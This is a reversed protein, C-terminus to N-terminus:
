QPLKTKDRIDLAVGSVARVVDYKDCAYLNSFSFGGIELLHFEHNATECIDMVWVPDPAFGSKAIKTALASANDHAGPRAVLDEGEKYQSGAVIHENAIVFRWEKIISKPSSVVVLSDVPFEYFAMFELDKDFTDHSVVLGTFLKLPSDPRVFIRRDRGFQDFLEKSRNPLESFPLMLHDRNLLYKRFHRYYHSCFFHEITAFAGPVWRADSRVRNILDIDAHAVVCSGFPFANRYASETDDWGYPPNPRNISRVEFGSRVIADALEDHYTDFVSADLLWGVNM